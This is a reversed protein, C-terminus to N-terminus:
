LLDRVVEFLGTFLLIVSALFGIMFGPGRKAPDKVYGNLYIIRGVVFVLGLGAAIRPNGYSGYIFIAPIFIILQELTNQQVRYYREFIPDGSTAPAPCNFKMRARGVLMAFVMYEILALLVVITVLEM